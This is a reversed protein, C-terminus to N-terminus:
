FKNSILADQYVKLPASKTKSCRRCPKKTTAITTSAAAGKGRGRSAYGSLGSSKVAVDGVAGLTSSIVSHPTTSVYSSGKSQVRVVPAVTTSSLGSHDSSQVNIVGLSGGSSYGSYGSNGLDIYSQYGSTDAGSGSTFSSYSSGSSGASSYGYGSDGSATSYGSLEPEVLTSVTSYIVPAATSSVYSYSSGVDQSSGTSYSIPASTSSVYSYGSGSSLGSSYGTAGNDVIKLSSEDSYVVPPAVTSAVYKIEQHQQEEKKTKYKIFFVEPKNQKAPESNQVVVEQRHEPKQHLVYVLTKEENQAQPAVVVSKPAPPNPAKIFIIKYHKQKKAVHQIIKPAEYEEKEEPPLHVYVHKFVEEVKAQPQILITSQQPQKYASGFSISQQHSQQTNSSGWVSSLQQTHGSSSGWVSSQSQQPHYSQIQPQVQQHVIRTKPPQIITTTIPTQHVYSSQHINAFAPLSQPIALEPQPAPEECDDVEPSYSPVSPFYLTSSIAPPEYHYGEPAALAAAVVSLVIVLRM